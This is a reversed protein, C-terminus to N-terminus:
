SFFGLCLIAVMIAIKFTIPKFDKLKFDPKLSAVLIPMASNYAFYIIISKLITLTLIILFFSVYMHHYGGTQYGRTQCNIGSINEFLHALNLLSM